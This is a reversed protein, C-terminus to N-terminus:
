HYKDSLELTAGWIEENKWNAKVWQVKIRYFTPGRNKSCLFDNRSPTLFIVIIFNINSMLHFSVPSSAKNQQFITTVNTDFMNKLNSTNM